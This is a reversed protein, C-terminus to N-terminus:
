APTVIGTGGEDMKVVAGLPESKARVEDLIAEAIEPAPTRPVGRRTLPEHRGLDVPHLRLEQLGDPGLRARALVARFIGDDGFSDENLVRSLDADTVASADDFREALLSRSEDYFYRQIPEEIESWVFNGLGYLIPRNRYLEVPALRHPGSIAVVDAGQDVAAHAWDRLFEPPEGPRGDGQHSHAAAVVVDAHQAAQRIARMNGAMAEDDMEHRVIMRDGLEFRRGYLELTRPPDGTPDVHQVLWAVDGEPHAERISVLGQMVTPTVVVTTRVPVTHVGPRAPVEGFADLAPALGSAPSTTMSVVGLRGADTELYRPARAAGLTAGAGAHVLAAEDLRRGTELLGGVGWDTAHNNGRGFVDFGLARLDLATGPDARVALDDSLGSPVADTETLDVISTELNGFAADAGRLLTVIEAFARDNPALWLLPRTVICDGVATVTFSGTLTTGQVGDVRGVLRMTRPLNPGHAGVDSALHEQRQHREEQHQAEVEHEEAHQRVIREVHERLEGAAESTSLTCSSVRSCASSRGNNGSWYMTNMRWISVSSRPSSNLSPTGAQDNILRKANGVSSSTPPAVSSAAASPM